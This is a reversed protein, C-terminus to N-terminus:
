ARTGVEYAATTVDIGDVMMRQRAAYNTLRAFCKEPCLCDILLLPVRLASWAAFRGRHRVPTRPYLACGTMRRGMTHVSFSSKNM